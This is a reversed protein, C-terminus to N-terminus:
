ARAVGSIMSRTLAPLGALELVEMEVSAFGANTIAWGTDRDLECGDAFFRQVPTLRRQWKRLADDQAAVHELFHFQGGPRLVRRIEALVHVPDAVSCLVLTAVAADFRGDAYPLNRGADAIDVEIERGYSVAKQKLRKAMWPNPEFMTLSVDPGYHPLNAGTGAGIELVNGHARGVIQQRLPALLVEGRRSMRDYLAAFLRRRLAESWGSMREGQSDARQMPVDRRGLLM